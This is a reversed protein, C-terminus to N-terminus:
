KTWSTNTFASKIRSKGKARALRYTEAGTTGFLINQVIRKGTSTQKRYKIELDSNKILATKQKELKKSRDKLKTIKKNTRNISKQKNQAARRIESYETRQKKSGSSPKKKRM